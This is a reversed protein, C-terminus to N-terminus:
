EGEKFFPIIDNDFLEFLTTEVDNKIECSNFYLYGTRERSTAVEQIEKLKTLRKYEM